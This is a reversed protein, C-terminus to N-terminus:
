EKKKGDKADDRAFDVIQSLPCDTMAVLLSDLVAREGDDANRYLNLIAGTRDAQVNLMMGMIKAFVEYQDADSLHHRHTMGATRSFVYSVDM